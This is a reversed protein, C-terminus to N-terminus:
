KKVYRKVIWGVVIAAVALLLIYIFINTMDGTQPSTSGKMSTTDDTKAQKAGEPTRIKDNDADDKDEPIKKDTGGPIKYKGVVRVQNDLMQSTSLGSKLEAEFSLEVSDGPELADIAAKTKGDLSVKVTKGKETKVSGETVFGADKAAKKLKEAMSDTVTLSKAAVNGYNRVIIKYRVKSGPEYTGPKKKGEYRGDVLTVGTTKDALKSVSIKPDAV